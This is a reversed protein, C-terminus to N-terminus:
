NNKDISEGEPNIMTSSFSTMDNFKDENDIIAAVREMEQDM